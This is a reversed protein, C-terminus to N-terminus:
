FHRSVMQGCTFNLTKSTLLGIWTKKLTGMVVFHAVAANMIQNAIPLPIVFSQIFYTIIFM